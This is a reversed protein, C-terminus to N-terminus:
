IKHKKSWSVNLKKKCQTLWLTSRMVGTVYVKLGINNFNKILCNKSKGQLDEEKDVLRTTEIVRKNGVYAEGNVRNVWSGKPSNMRALLRKKEEMRQALEM